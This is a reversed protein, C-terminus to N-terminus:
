DSEISSIIKNKMKELKEKKSSTIDFEFGFNINTLILPNASALGFDVKEEPHELANEIDENSIKGLEVKEAASIIRRIQNWLFNPAFFDIILFNEFEEVTINDITRIPNKDPEVRAFNSFDHEGVFLSLTDVIKKIDLDKNILYYSYHRTKAYRPFFDDDVKKYGYFLIEKNNENLKDLINKKFADVNFAIVNGLSSVGKDTRSASRFESTKTDTILELNTLIKIIEGEVTRLNPQRAYGYFNRGVYAFKLAVRM